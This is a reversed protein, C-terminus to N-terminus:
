RMRRRRKVPVRQADVLGCTFMLSQDEAFTSIRHQLLLQEEKNRKAKGSLRNIPCTFLYMRLCRASEGADIVRSTIGVTM